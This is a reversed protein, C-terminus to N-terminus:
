QFLECFSAVLPQLSFKFLPYPLMFLLLAYPKEARQTLSLQHIPNM